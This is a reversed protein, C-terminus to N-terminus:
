KCYNYHMVQYRLYIAEDNLNGNFQGGEGYFVFFLFFYQLVMIKEKEM